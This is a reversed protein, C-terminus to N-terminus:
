VKSDARPLYHYSSDYSEGRVGNIVARVTRVGVAHLRQCATYVNKMRSVNCLVSFVVVDAHKAILLPDAVPLVPPSDILIFEFSHRLEHLIAATRPHSLARTAQYDWRGGSILSLGAIPTPRIVDALDAEARLLESCGPERSLGVIRHATPNRMDGDILLTKHGVQALSVALHTAVSTKGEGAQASTIMVVQPVWQADEGQAAAEGRAAELLMTRTTEISEIFIHQSADGNRIPSQFWRRPLTPIAGVLKLGLGQVVEDITEIKRAQFERWSIAFCVFIFSGVGAMIIPLIGGLGSGFNVYGADVVSVRTPVNLLINLAEEETELRKVLQELFSQDKIVEEFKFENNMMDQIENQLREIDEKLSARKSELLAHNERLGTIERKLDDHVTQLLQMEVRPRAKARLSDLEKQTASLKRRRELIRPNNPDRYTPIAAEIELQLRQVETLLESFHLGLTRDNRLVEELAAESITPLSPKKQKELLMKLKLESENLQNITAVFNNQFSTLTQKKLELAMARARADLPLGKKALKKQEEKQVDLQKQYNQRLKQTAELLDRRDKFEKDPFDKRYVESIANVLVVLEDPKDGFARIRLIEPALTFDADVAKELWELPKKQARVMSLAAVEQRQLVKGLVLRSKVFATHNRQTGVADPLPTGVPLIHVEPLLRLTTIAGHAPPQLYWMAGAALCAGLM